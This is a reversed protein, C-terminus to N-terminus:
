RAIARGLALLRPVVAPLVYPLLPRVLGFVSGAAILVAVPLVELM